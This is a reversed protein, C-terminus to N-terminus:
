SYIQCFFLKCLSPCDADLLNAKSTIDLWFLLHYYLKGYIQYQGGVVTWFVYRARQNEWHLM